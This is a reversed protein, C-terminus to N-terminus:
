GGSARYNGHSFFVHGSLLSPLFALALLAFRHVGVDFSHDIFRRRQSLLLPRLEGYQKLRYSVGVAQV